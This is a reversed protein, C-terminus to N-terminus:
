KRIRYFYQIYFKINRNKWGYIEERATTLMSYEYCFGITWFRHHPQKIKFDIGTLIGTDYRNYRFTTDNGLYIEEDTVYVNNKSDWFSMTGSLWYAVFPSIYPSVIIKSDPTLDVQGGIDM